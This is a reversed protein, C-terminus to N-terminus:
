SVVGSEFDGDVDYVIDLTQQIAGALGGVRSVIQTPGDATKTVVELTDYALTFFTAGLKANMSNAITIQTDQKAETAVGSISVPVASQNSAIVVPFSNAMTEQGREATNANIATLQAIELVQNAATAGGVPAAIAPAPWVYTQSM